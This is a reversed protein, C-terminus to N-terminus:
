KKRMKYWSCKHTHLLLKISKTKPNLSLKKGKAEEISHSLSLSLSLSLLHRTHLTPNEASTTKQSSFIRSRPGRIRPLAPTKKPLLLMNTPVKQLAQNQSNPAFSSPNGNHHQFEEKILNV